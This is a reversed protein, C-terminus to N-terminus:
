EGEAAERKKRIVIEEGADEKGESGIKSIEKTRLSCVYM